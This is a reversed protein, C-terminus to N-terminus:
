IEAERLMNLLVQADIVVHDQITSAYASTELRRSDRLLSKFGLYDGSQQCTIGSLNSLIMMMKCTERLLMSTGFHIAITM